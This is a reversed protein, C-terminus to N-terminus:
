AGTGSIRYLGEFDHDQLENAAGDFQLQGDRLGILRPVCERALAVDHLSLLLTVGREAAVGLFLELVERSRSPDLASLPEDALILRPEQYLARAIAVRQQEGGSLQDVRHYLKDGIGLRELLAHVTQLETSGPWLMSRWADVRSRRGLSGAIVNRSVRMNPVLGLDQRVIGIRTRLHRLAQPGLQTPAKGDVLLSGATPALGGHIMRLLSSKGAGSPGVLAVAEGREIEASVSHVGIGGGYDVTVERFSIAMALDRSPAASM